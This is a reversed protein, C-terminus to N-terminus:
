RGTAWLLDGRELGSRHTLLDRIAFSQNAIPDAVEFYPLWRAVPDDWGLTGADVLMGMATSTFAKTTSAIAFITNADVLDPKGIERVGYGKALIVSDNRVIAIALGPVQWERLAQEVYADLTTLSAAASKATSTSTSTRQAQAPATSTATLLATSLATTLAATFATSRAATSRATSRATSSFAAASRADRATM